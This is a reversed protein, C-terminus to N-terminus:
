RKFPRRLRRIWLLESQIQERLYHVVTGAYTGLEMQEQLAALKQDRAGLYKEREALIRTRAEPSLIEFMGVRAVFGEQSSADDEGYESLRQILTRQGLPTISYQQRTQGRKGPMTKKTVWGEALFRRLMPYILNNHLTGQGLILGAERKLQYGHKPGALLTALIILDNM